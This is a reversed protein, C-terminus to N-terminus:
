ERVGLLMKERRLARALKHRSRFLKLRVLATGLGTIESIEKHSMEEAHALWLLQREVPHLHALAANLLSDSDLREIGEPNVAPLRREPLDELSEGTPRRWHDRLLNSGIRFLYRRCATEGEERPAKACLFRLYSEQVLDEALTSSGSARSLYARLPRETNHYFRAFAEENLAFQAADEGEALDYGALSSELIGTRSNM